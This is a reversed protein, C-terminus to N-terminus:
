VTGRGTCSWATSPSGTRGMLAWRFGEPIAPVGTETEGQWIDYIAMPSLHWVGTEMDSLLDFTGSRYFMDLAEHFGIGRRETILSLVEPVVALALVSGFMREDM